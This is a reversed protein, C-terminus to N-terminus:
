LVDHRKKALEAMVERVSCFTNVEMVESMELFRRTLTCIDAEDDVALVRIPSQPM